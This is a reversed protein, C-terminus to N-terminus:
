IWTYIPQRTNLPIWVGWFSALWYITFLHTPIDGVLFEWAEEGNQVGAIWPHNLALRVTIHEEPDPQTLQTILITADQPIDHADQVRIKKKEIPLSSCCCFLGGQKKEAENRGTRSNKACVPFNHLQSLYGQWSWACPGVWWTPMLLWATIPWVNLWLQM